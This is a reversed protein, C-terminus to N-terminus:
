VNLLRNGRYLHQMLVRVEEETYGDPDVCSVGGSCDTFSYSLSRSQLIYLLVKM